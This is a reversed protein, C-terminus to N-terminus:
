GSFDLGRSEGSEHHPLDSGFVRHTAKTADRFALSFGGGGCVCIDFSQGREWIDFSQGREELLRGILKM